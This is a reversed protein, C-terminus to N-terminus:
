VLCWSIAVPARIQRDVVDCPASWDMRAESKDIRYPQMRSAWKQNTKPRYRGWPGWLKCGDCEAGMQALRDHLSATRDDPLISTQVM